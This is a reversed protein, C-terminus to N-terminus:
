HDILHSWKSGALAEAVDSFNAIRDSARGIGQKVNRTDGYRSPDLLPALFTALRERGNGAAFEDFTLTLVNARAAIRSAFGAIQSENRVLFALLDAVDVQIRGAPERSTASGHFREWHSSEAAQRQSVYTDLYNERILHVIRIQDDAILRDWYRDPVRHYYFVKYAVLRVRRLYRLNVIRETLGPTFYHPRRFIERWVFADPHSELFSCLMNSGSRSRTVVVARGYDLTGFATGALFSAERKLKELLYNM